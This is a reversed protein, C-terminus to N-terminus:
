KIVPLNIYSPREGSVVIKQTAKKYDGESAFFITPVFKQPNRDYLPFWSSQVQVMLRHGPKFVHNVKPLEFTYTLPKDATLPRAESITERYRGRFIEMAIPFQYGAMNNDSPVEDPYVDILKVVWDSDTGSTSATLNVVPVGAVAIADALVESTFTIVDPRTAANRQDTTLWTTWQSYDEFTIPRDIFPVPYAPDSIYDVTKEAGSAPTFELTRDPKMYLKKVTSTEPWTIHQQWENTGSQFVTVPAIHAAEGKLHYALFPALVNKQWWVSTNHGWKINGLSSADDAMSQGHSWPGLSLFVMDNATDKPELARYVAYGGYLDEQDWLSSVLMVPVKLPEKALVLDMAQSQWFDDYAEHDTLKRWFGSQEMGYRNAMAKLSGERLFAEYREPTSWVFSSDGGRSASSSYISSITMQRFAGNHFWDDGRWGDVMPDVPVAVKLAPHPNVLAMLAEFGNYSMGMIGVNGNTEPINKILWEITDYADTSEDVDTSNYPNSVLPRNMVFSGDSGNTGRIDQIVRIYGGDVILDAVNGFGHLIARMDGSTAYSTMAEASYPTRTLLIPSNMAGKPVIIVTHLTVGDRMEIDVIRREYNWGETSVVHTEPREDYSPDDASVLRLSSFVVLTFLLIRM